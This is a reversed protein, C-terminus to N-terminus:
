TLAYIHLIKKEKRSRNEQEYLLGCTALQFKRINQKFFHIFIIGNYFMLEMLM